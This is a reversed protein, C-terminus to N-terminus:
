QFSFLKQDHYLYLNPVFDSITIQAILLIPQNILVNPSNAIKSLSAFDDSSPEKGGNPHSHWEGLYLLQGKYKDFIEKLQTNITKIDPKFTTPSNLFKTPVLIDSIIACDKSSNYYGLLVGGIENPFHLNGLNKIKGLCKKNIILKLNLEQQVYLMDEFIQLGLSDSREIFFTTVTKVNNVYNDIKSVATSVLSFIDAGTALFTPHWCGTGERFEPYSDENLANILQNRREFLSQLPSSVTCILHNAKNTLSIHIILASPKINELSILVKNNGTCDFILDYADFKSALERAKSSGNSVFQFDRNINIDIFPSIEILTKKLSDTKNNSTNSFSFQSRCINGPEIRDPDNIDIFKAGGRTILNALVSGVAGCGLILIKRDTFFGSFKGRGFFRNYTSNSTLGWKIKENINIFYSKFERKSKRKLFILPVLILNWHLEFSIKNPVKYGIALFFHGPFVGSTKRFTNGQAQTQLVDLFDKEFLPILDEWNEIRLKRKLIPERKIITWIGPFESLGQYHKSWNSFKNGLSKAIFTQATGVVSNLKAFKFVGSTESQFRNIFGSNEPEDFILNIDIGKRIPIYEYNDDEENNVYYKDLWLILREIEISLRQALNPSDPTALCLNGGVNEENGTNQHPYGVLTSPIFEIEGLPYENPIRVKFLINDKATKVIIEGQITDTENDCIFYEKLALKEQASFFGNYFEADEM